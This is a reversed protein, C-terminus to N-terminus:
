EVCEDGKQWIKGRWGVVCALCSCGWMVVLEKPVIKKLHNKKKKGPTFYILQKNFGHDPSCTSVTGKLDPLEESRVDRVLIFVFIQILVLNLLQRFNLLFFFFALFNQKLPSKWFTTSQFPNLRCNTNPRETSCPGSPHETCFNYFQKNKGKSISQKGFVNQSRSRAPM